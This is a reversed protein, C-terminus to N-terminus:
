HRCWPRLVAGVQPAAFTSPPGPGRPHLDSAFADVRNAGQNPASRASGRDGARDDDERCRGAGRDCLDSPGLPTGVGSPPRPRGATPPPTAHSSTWGSEPPGEFGHRVNFESGRRREINRLGVRDASRALARFTFIIPRPGARKAGTPRLSSKERPPGSRSGSPIRRAWPRPDTGTTAEAPLRLSPNFP